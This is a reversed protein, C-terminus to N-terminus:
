IPVAKRKQDPTLADIGAWGYAGFKRLRRFRSANMGGLAIVPMKAKRALAAFGAPGLPAAGPHSRTAHVPSVIVFPLARARALETHDHVRAAQLNAGDLVILGRRRGFLAIRALLRRREIQPLELREVFVGAGRPLRALAPWLREGTRADAILWLRPLPPHRGTM